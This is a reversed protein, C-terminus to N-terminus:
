LAVPCVGGTLFYAWLEDPPAPQGQGPTPRAFQRQKLEANRVASHVQDKQV